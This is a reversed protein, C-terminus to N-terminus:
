KEYAETKKNVFCSHFYDGQLTATPLPCTSLHARCTTQAAPVMPTDSESFVTISCSPVHPSPWHGWTSQRPAVRFEEQGSTAGEDRGQGARGLQESPIAGQSRSPLQQDWPAAPLPSVQCTGPAQCGQKGLMSAPGDGLPWREGGRCQVARQGQHM